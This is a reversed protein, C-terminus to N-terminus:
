WPPMASAGGAAAGDLWSQLRQRRQEMQLGGLAEVEAYFADIGSTELLRRLGPLWHRYTAVSAIHANNLPRSFWEDYNAGGYWTRKLAGYEVRLADFAAEKARRKEDDPVDRAYIARLRERQGRVLEAFQARRRVQERYDDIGATDGVRMLWRRTGYEAVATAFAENLDSDDKVYFKQHALEHILQEVLYFSPGAIMTNLVPDAFYGLTSYATAGAVATDLGDAQLRAAFRRASAENFYGRYNVCGAFAFCWTRPDVSLEDAAVVNWVVVDRELDAYTAYSRNDPLALEAVAFHRIELVERLADRTQASTQPNAIVAEIPSRKGYLAMQGAAAQWYYPLSCGGLLAVAGVIVLAGAAAAVARKM